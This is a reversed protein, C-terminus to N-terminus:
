DEDDWIDPPGCLYCWVSTRGDDLSLSTRHGENERQHKGAAIQAETPLDRQGNPRASWIEAPM